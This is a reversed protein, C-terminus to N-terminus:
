EEKMGLIPIFNYHKALNTVTTNCAGEAIIVHRGFMKIKTELMVGIISDNNILLNKVICKGFVKVGIIKLQKVIEKCVLNISIIVNNTNKYQSPVIDIINYHNNHTLKWIAESTVLTGNISPFDLILKDFQM